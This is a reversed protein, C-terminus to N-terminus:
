FITLIVKFNVEKSSDKLEPSQVIERTVLWDSSDFVGVETWTEGNAEGAVINCNIKLAQNPMDIEIDAPTIAKEFIATSSPTMGSNPTVFNPPSGGDTVAEAAPTPSNGLRFKTIDNALLQLARIRAATTIM